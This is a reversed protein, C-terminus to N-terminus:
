LMECWGHINEECPVKVGYKFYSKPKTCYQSRGWARCFTGTSAGSGQETCPMESCFSQSWYNTPCTGLVSEPCHLELPDQTLPQPTPCNRLTQLIHQNPLKCPSSLSLIQSVRLLAPPVSPPVTTRGRVAQPVRAASTARSHASCNRLQSVNCFVTQLNGYFAKETSWQLNLFLQCPTFKELLPQEPNSRKDWSETPTYLNTKPLHM